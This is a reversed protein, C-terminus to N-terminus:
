MELYFDFMELNFDQYMSPNFMILVADIDGTEMEKKILDIAKMQSYHRQDIIIMESYASLNASNFALGFSDSFVILKGGSVNKNKLRVFDNDGGLQSIYINAYKTDLDLQYNQIMAEKYDGERITDSPFTYRNTKNIIHSTYNKDNVPIVFNFNDFGGFREGVRRGQSGIFRKNADELRYDEKSLKIKSVGEELLIDNVKIVLELAGEPKWHHDTNFFLDSHNLTKDEHILERTDIVFHNNDTLYKIFNDANVNSTDEIGLPLMSNYKDIKIPSQIYYNKINLDDLEKMFKSTNAAIKNIDYLPYNFTLKDDTMKYVNLTPDADRITRGGTINKVSGYLEVFFDRAFIGESVGREFGKTTAKIIDIDTTDEDFNKNAEIFAYYSIFQNGFLLSLIFLSLVIVIFKSSIFKYTKKM